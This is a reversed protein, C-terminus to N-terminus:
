TPPRHLLKKVRRNSRSRIMGMSADVTVEKGKLSDPAVALKGPSAPAAASVTLSWLALLPFRVRPVPSPEGPPTISCFILSYVLGRKWEIRKLELEFRAVVCLMTPARNMAGSWAGRGAGPRPPSPRARRAAPEITSAIVCHM